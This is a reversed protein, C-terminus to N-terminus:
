AAGGMAPRAPAGWFEVRDAIEQAAHARGLARAAAAMEMLRARSALLEAIRAALTGADVATELMEAAGADVLRRANAKQHGGAIELPLLLAPRGAACLEALTIAGARSVVLHSESM